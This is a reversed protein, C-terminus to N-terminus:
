ETVAKLLDIRGLGFGPHYGTRGFSDSSERLLDSLEDPGLEPYLQKMVALAGAVHPTAMSTGSRTRYRAGLDASYVGVGPATVDPKEVTQNKWRVPGRSSFDAMGDSSNTAGVTLSEPCAGPPTISNERPGDNGAAFVPLVGFEKLRIIIQCFPESEPELTGVRVGMNWSNSIIHAGDDTEPNDDPDVMWQLAKLLESDESNGRSNFGKAVILDAGPAVGISRGSSSGGAITGAVHTGHGHDDMALKNNPNIFDRFAVIRDTLDPHRQTIGTDIVGVRVGRGELGVYQARVQPVGIKILGYTFLDLENSAEFEVSRLIQVPRGLPIVQNVFSLTGIRKSEAESVSLITSNLIWLSEGKNLVGFRGAFLKAENEATVQRLLQNRNQNSLTQLGRVSNDKYVVLVKQLDSEALSVGSIFCSAVLISLFKSM